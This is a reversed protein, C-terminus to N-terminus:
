FKCEIIQKSAFDQIRKSNNLKGKNQAGSVVIEHNYFLEGQMSAALDIQGSQIGREM